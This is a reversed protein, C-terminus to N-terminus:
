GYHNFSSKISMKFHMNKQQKSWVNNVGKLSHIISLQELIAFLESQKLFVLIVSHSISIIILIAYSFSFESDSQSNFLPYKAHFQVQAPLSIASM